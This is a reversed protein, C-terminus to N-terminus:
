GDSGSGAGAADLDADREARLAYLLPVRPADEPLRWWGDDGATMHPWRPWPLADVERLVSVRLGAGVLATVVEGVGHAWEYNETAASLPPGDTYTHASDKRLPGRGGVVDGRLRLGTGEGPEPTLGLSTLLPHFEVLYLCGGPRLLARVVGAWAPLDPLYCLAGKGTYVVDFGGAGLLQEADYVNGRVYTVDAGAREAIDRAAAVSAGSLDLGVVRRAGRAAFALTETGLHCQLHAIDRGRLDGLDDWEFAGFWRAPDLDDGLGYFRSALHVPVRADWNAENARLM